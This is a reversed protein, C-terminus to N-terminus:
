QRFVSSGIDFPWAYIEFLSVVSINERISNLMSALKWSEAPINISHQSTEKRWETKRRQKKSSEEDGGDMLLLQYWVLDRWCNSLCTGAMKALHSSVRAVENAVFEADGLMVNDNLKGHSASRGLCLTASSESDSSDWRKLTSGSGPPTVLPYSAKRDLSTSNSMSLTSDSGSSPLNGSASSSSRESRESGRRPFSGPWTTTRDFDEDGTSVGSSM